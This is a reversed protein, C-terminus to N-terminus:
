ANKPRRYRNNELTTAVELHKPNVCKRNHCIHNIILKDKTPEAIGEPLADFGYALAYAFRHARVPTLKMSGNFITFQGYGSPTTSATWELCGTEHNHALKKIFKNVTHQDNIGWYISKDKRSGEVPITAMFAVGDLASSTLREVQCEKCYSQVRDRKHGSFGELPKLQKCSGCKKFGSLTKVTEVDQVDQAHLTKGTDM